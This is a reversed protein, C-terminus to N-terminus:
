RWLYVEQYALVSKPHLQSAGTMVTDPERM